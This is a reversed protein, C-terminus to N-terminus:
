KKKFDKRKFLLFPVIHVPLYTRLVPKLGKVIMQLMKENCNMGPHTASCSFLQGQNNIAEQVFDLTLATM